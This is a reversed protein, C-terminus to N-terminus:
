IINIFVKRLKSNSINSLYNMANLGSNHHTTNKKNFFNNMQVLDHEFNYKNKEENRVINGSVNFNTLNNEKTMNITSMNSMVSKKPKSASKHISNSRIMKNSITM